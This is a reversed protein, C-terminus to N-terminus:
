KKTLRSILYFIITLFLILILVDGHQTYFSTNKLLPVDEVAVGEQFAPIIALTKGRPSIVASIGNDSVRVLYLRNEIARFINVMFNLQHEALSSSWGDSSLNYIINAGQRATKRVTKGFVAEYCIVVTALYPPEKIALPKEAEGRLFIGASLNNRINLPLLLQYNVTEIFPILKEKYHEGIVVGNKNIYFASNYKERYRLSFIREDINGILYATGTREIISRLRRAAERDKRLSLGISTEPWIILQPKKQSAQRSLEEYTKFFFEKKEQWDSFFMNINPQILGVKIQGIPQEKFFLGASIVISFLLIIQFLYKTKKKEWFLFGLTNLTYIFLSVSWVGGLAAIQILPLYQYQSYGSVMLPFGYPGVSRLYDFITLVLPLIFYHGTNLIGKSFFLYFVQLLSFSIAALYYAPVSNEKIWYLLFLNITLFTLFGWLPLWRWRINKLIMFFPIYCFWQLWGQNFPPASLIIGVIFLFSLLFIRGTKPM